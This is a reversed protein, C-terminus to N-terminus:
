RMIDNRQKKMNDRIEITGRELVSPHCTACVWPGSCDKKRWWKVSSCVYCPQISPEQQGEPTVISPPVIVEGLM